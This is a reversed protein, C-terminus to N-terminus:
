VDQYRVPMGTRRAKGRLAIVRDGTVDVGDVTNLVFGGEGEAEVDGFWHLLLDNALYEAFFQTLQPRRMVEAADPWNAARLTSDVPCEPDPHAKSDEILEPLDRSLLDFFFARPLEVRYSVDLIRETRWHQGFNMMRKSVRGPPREEGDIICACRAADAYKARLKSGFEM